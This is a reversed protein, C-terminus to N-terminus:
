PTLAFFPQNAILIFHRQKAVYRGASAQKVLFIQSLTNTQFLASKMMMM